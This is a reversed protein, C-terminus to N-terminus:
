QLVSYRRRCIESKEMSRRSGEFRDIVLEKIGVISSVPQSRDIIFPLKTLSCGVKELNGVPGRHLFSGTQLAKKVYRGFEKCFNAWIFQEM